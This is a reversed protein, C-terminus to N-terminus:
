KDDGDFDRHICLIDECRQMIINPLELSLEPVTSQVRRALAYSMGPTPPPSNQGSVGETDAPLCNTGGQPVIVLTGVVVVALFVL